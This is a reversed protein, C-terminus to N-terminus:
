KIKFLDSVVQCTPPVMLFYDKISDLMIWYMTNKLNISVLTVSQESSVMFFLKFSIMAEIM